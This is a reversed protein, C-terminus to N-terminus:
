CHDALQPTHLLLAQNIGSRARILETETMPGNEGPGLCVTPIDCWRQEAASRAMEPLSSRRRSLLM